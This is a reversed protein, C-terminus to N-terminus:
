KCIKRYFFYGVIAGLSNMIIDDLEFKGLGTYYQVSEIILSMFLGTILGLLPKKFAKFCNPMLFGLPLTLLFNESLHILTFQPYYVSMEFFSLSSSNDFQGFSRNFLTLTFAIYLYATLLMLWAFRGWNKKAIRYLGPMAVTSVALAGVGYDVAALYVDNVIQSFILSTM